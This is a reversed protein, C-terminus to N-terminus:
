EDTADETATEAIVARLMSAHADGLVHRAYAEVARETESEVKKDATRSEEAERMGERRAKAIEQVVHRAERRRMHPCRKTRELEAEVLRRRRAEDDARSAAFLSCWVASLVAAAMIGLGLVVLWQWVSM